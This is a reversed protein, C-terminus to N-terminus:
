LLLFGCGVFWNIAGLQSSMCLVFRIMFWCQFGTCCFGCRFYIKGSLGIMANLVTGLSPFFNNHALGFVISVVFVVCGSGFAVVSRVSVIALRDISCMVDSINTSIVFSTREM